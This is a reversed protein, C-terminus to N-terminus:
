YLIKVEFLNYNSLLEYISDEFYKVYRTKIRTFLPKDEFQSIENYIKIVNDQAERVRKNIGAVEMLLAEIYELLNKSNWNLVTEAKKINKDLKTMDLMILNREVDTTSTKMYNYLDVVSNLMNIYNRFEQFRKFTDEISSPIKRSPFFKKMYQVETLVEMASKSFNVRLTGKIKKWKVREMLPQELGIKTQEEATALWNKFVKNEYEILKKNLKKYKKFVLEGEQSYCIPHNVNKFAKVSKTIKLRLQSSFKLQGSAIPVNKETKFKSNHKIMAQQKEFVEKANDIEENLIVALLPMKDSVELAILGRKLLNGFIDFLKFIADSSSCDDFARTLTAGLRRDMMWVEKNFKKFDKPFGKDEPDSCDYTKLGFTAYLDKFQNFVKKVSETLLKGRLGGVEVKELKLFQNSTNCFESLIKLRDLFTDYKKFILHEQFSWSKPKKDQFYSPVKEKYEKFCNKFEKLTILSLNVKDLAEEVEIQFVTEPDIHKKVLSMLLNCIEQMLIIIRAPSNYYESNAYVLCVAHMLPPFLKTLESFEASEISKFHPVLPKLHATIDLAEKLSSCVNKYM